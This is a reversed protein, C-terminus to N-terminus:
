IYTEIIFLFTHAYIASVHLSPNACLGFLGHGLAGRLEKRYDSMVLTFNPSTRLSM